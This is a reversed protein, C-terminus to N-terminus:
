LHLSKPNRHQEAEREKCAKRKAREMYSLSVIIAHFLVTAASIAIAATFRGVASSVAL